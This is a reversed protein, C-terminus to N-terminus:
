QSDTGSDRELADIRASMDALEMRKLRADLAAMTSGYRSREFDSLQKEYDQLVNGLDREASKMNDPSLEPFPIAIGSGEATKLRELLAATRSGYFRQEIAGFMGELFATQFERNTTVKLKQGTTKAVRDALAYMAEYYTFHERLRKVEEARDNM